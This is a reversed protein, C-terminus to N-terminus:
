ILQEKYNALRLMGDQLEVPIADVNGIQSPTLNEIMHHSAWSDLVWHKNGSLKEYGLKYTEILNPLRQVQETTFGPLM